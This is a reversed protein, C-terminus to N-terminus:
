LEAMFVRRKLLSGASVTIGADLYAIGFGDEQSKTHHVITGPLEVL